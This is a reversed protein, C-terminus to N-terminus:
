KEASILGLQIFAQYLGDETVSPCVVDALKKLTEAGNDMCVSTGCTELMQLDNMSDGFGITDEISVGLKAAIQKVGTGKDFEKCQLEGNAVGLGTDEQVVFGFYEELEERCADINDTSASMLAFKYIPRGDYQDIPLIGLSSEIAKRWRELESNGKGSNGIFSGINSDAFSQDKGEITCFVSHAHLVDLAQQLRERPMPNDYLIEGSCTVYGGSSSIVGDYPFTLLPKLMGLNRGTCLFMKHGNAKAMEMAKIASDPPVNEGPVTLTGDIDLFVLKM